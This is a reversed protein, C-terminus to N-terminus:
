SILTTLNHLNLDLAGAGMKDILYRNGSAPTNLAILKRGYRQAARAAHMAGGDAESEVVILTEVLGAIIRNRAVLGATSVPSDPAVECLLLGNVTVQEALAQHQPPYVKLVGSGLVGVCAGGVHGRLAGAFASEDIGFALGSVIEYGAASLIAGLQHAAKLAVPSPNRTGVIAISEAKLASLQGLAFFTPPADTAEHLIMPYREDDLTIIQVGASQWRSIDAELTPLDIQPIATSIKEGVGRVKQLAHPDAELVARSSGFSEILARMTVGGIGRVLSLAVWAPDVM